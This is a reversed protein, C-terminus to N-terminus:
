DKEDQQITEVAPEEKVYRALYYGLALMFVMTMATMGYFKINFWTETDYNYM